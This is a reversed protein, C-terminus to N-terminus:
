TGHSCGGERERAERKKQAREKKEKLEAPVDRQVRNGFSKPDIKGWLTEPEGSPEHNDRPRTDTTLVLSSNAKYEYQKYRAYAEAGGGSAM